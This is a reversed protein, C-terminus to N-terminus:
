CCAYARSSAGAPPPITRGEIRPGTVLMVRCNWQAFDLCSCPDLTDLHAVGCVYGNRDLRFKLTSSVRRGVTSQIDRVGLASGM